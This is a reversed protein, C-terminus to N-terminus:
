FTQSEARLTSFPDIRSFKMIQILKMFTTTAEQCQKPPTKTAPADLDGHELKESQGLFLRPSFNCVNTTTDDRSTGEKAKEHDNLTSCSKFASALSKHAELATNNKKNIVFYPGSFRHNIEGM